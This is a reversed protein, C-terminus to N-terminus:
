LANFVELVVSFWFIHHVESIPVVESSLVFTGNGFHGRKPPEMTHSLRASDHAYFSIGCMREDIGCTESLSRQECCHEEQHLTHQYLKVQVGM